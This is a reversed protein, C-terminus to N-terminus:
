KAAEAIGGDVAKGVGGVVVREGPNLGSIVEIKEGYKRGLRVLRYAIVSKDDVVFVGTLQGKEVVAGAPVLLAEKSGVPITVKGYLGNRLGEGGLAIKVLFSRSGPDVSPVVETVRGKITRNISELSIRAEMGPRIRGSQSEDVRIEMRYGSDDEVTVLPMGPVATSGAEIKKETVMGSVPATVKTFGHYVKAEDLGAEARRLAAQAREYDLGAVKRQTEIQDMEQQTLAREDHLMKYRQYTTDALRRNEDAAAAAKEAEKYGEGAQRVKQSVDSDDVTLLVQGARVRDGEGVKVSTVTGMMRSAVISITKARVTGSTEYVDDAASMDIVATTLGSVTTRKVDATGPKVKGQCGSFFSLVVLITGVIIIEKKM